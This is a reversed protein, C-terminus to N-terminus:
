DHLFKDVNVPQNSSAKAPMLVGKVNPETVRPGSPIATPQKPGPRAGAGFIDPQATPRQPPMVAAKPAALPLIRSSSLPSVPPSYSVQRIRFSDFFTLSPAYVLPFVSSLLQGDRSFVQQRLSMAPAGPLNNTRAAEKLRALTRAGPHDGLPVEWSVPHDKPRSLIVLQKLASPAGDQWDSLLMKLDIGGDITLRAGDSGRELPKSALLDVQTLTQVRRVPFDNTWYKLGVVKIEAAENWKALAQILGTLRFLPNLRRVPRSVKSIMDIKESMELAFRDAVENRVPPRQSNADVSMIQTDVTVSLEDVLAVGQGNAIQSRKSPLFWFRSCVGSNDGNTKWREAAMNAYSTLRLPNSELLGLGARKLLLDAELLDRGFGTNEIGGEFRVKQKKTLDTDNTRDISVLPVTRDNLVARMVVAIDEAGLPEDISNAEGVLILDHKAEDYVLGIPRSIGGVNSVASDLRGKSQVWAQAEGLSFARYVIGAHVRVVFVTLILALFMLRCNGIINM